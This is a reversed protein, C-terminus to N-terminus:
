RKLFKNIKNQERADSKMRKDIGKDQHGSAKGKLYLNFDKADGTLGKLPKHSDSVGSSEIDDYPVNAEGQLLVARTDWIFVAYLTKTKDWGTIICHMYPAADLKSQLQNQLAKNYAVIKM